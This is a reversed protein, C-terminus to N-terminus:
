EVTSKQRKKSYKVVMIIECLINKTSMFSRSFIGFLERPFHISSARDNEARHPNDWHKMRVLAKNPMKHINKTLHYIHHHYHYTMFIVHKSLSSM